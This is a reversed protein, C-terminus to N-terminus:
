AGASSVGARWDVAGCGFHLTVRTHLGGSKWNSETVTTPGEAGALYGYVYNSVVRPDALVYYRTGSLNSDALAAIRTEAGLAVKSIVEEAISESEPPVLLISAPTNLRVGDPTTVNRLKTRAVGLSAVSISYAGVTNGRTDDFVPTSDALDPGLGSNPAICTEFVLQNEFDSARLAAAKALDSFASLDDNALTKFSLAVIRSYSALTITQASEGLSGQKVEGSEGVRLPVPFDGPRIMEAPKFDKFSKQTAIRRFTPSANRYHELLVKDFASGCLFPFDTTTLALEICASPATKPSLNRDAGKAVLCAHALRAWSSGEMYPAAQVSPRRGLTDHLVRATLGECLRDPLWHTDHDFGLATMNMEKRAPRPAPAERYDQPWGGGLNRRLRRLGGRPEYVESV